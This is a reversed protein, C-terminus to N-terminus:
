KISGKLSKCKEWHIKNNIKKLTSLEISNNFQVVGQLHENENEGIEEQYIYKKIGIKEFDIALQALDKKDYGNFTFCWSRARQRVKRQCLKGTNGRHGHTGITGVKQLNM